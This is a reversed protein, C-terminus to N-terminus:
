GITDGAARCAFGFNNILTPTTVFAQGGIHASLVGKISHYMDDVMVQTATDQSTLSGLIVRIAIAEKATCHILVGKSEEVINQALTTFM